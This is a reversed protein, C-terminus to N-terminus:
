PREEGYTITIRVADRAVDAERNLAEVEAEALALTSLLATGLDLKGAAYSDRDLVARRKALPVLVERANRLRAHHMAHDALDAELSALLQRRGAERDFRAGQARSNSADVRPNQRRGAFLPLDVSVNVSALDGFAPARRGYSVGVRWDPRKDARALRVDADAGAINADLVRMGPLSDIGARLRDPDVTLDPPDGSVEPNPDGTYQALRARAQAIVAVMEARRDAIAARLQEPELAQSPRASGSALRATVTKQLDDLSALLLDLQALRREGYYLDIWALATELRVSRREALESAEAMGIEATAREARAHRKALNPFLQSFGITTMTFDDGTFSGAHPGTVPFDRIGLDLTPDPLRDAATASSRAGATSAARAKLSPANATARELAESYTLPDALAASPLWLCGAALLLLRM